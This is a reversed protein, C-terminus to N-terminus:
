KSLTRVITALVTPLDFEVQENTFRLVTFGHYELWAQRIVDSEQQRPESHYGGDVEIVLQHELCTFDVIFGGIVHQRLFKVGLGNQRIAEWLLSEGLTMNKRNDRAYQRLLSYLIPDATKFM